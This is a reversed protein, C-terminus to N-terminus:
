SVAPRQLDSHGCAAVRESGVFCKFMKASAICMYATYARRDISLNEGGAQGINKATKRKKEAAPSVKGFGKATMTSESRRSCAGRWTYVLGFGDVSFADFSLIPVVTYCVYVTFSSISLARNRM